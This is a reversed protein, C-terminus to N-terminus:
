LLVVESKLEEARVSLLTDSVMNAAVQNGSKINEKTQGSSDAPQEFRMDPLLADDTRLTKDEM